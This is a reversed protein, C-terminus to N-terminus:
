WALKNGYLVQHVSCVQVADLADNLNRKPVIAADLNFSGQVRDM